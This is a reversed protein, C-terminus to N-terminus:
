QCIVTDYSAAYACFIGLGGEVGPNIPSISGFPNGNNASQTEADRWFQYSNYDMTCFKVVVTDGIKYFGAELDDPETQTNPLEGRNYAFELTTGNIFKDEFASGFPPIYLSDKHLRKAFWRYCNGLTDPDTLKAWTFGLTDNNPQPKFYLSDLKIPATLTTKGTVVEGNKTIVTLTYTRGTIGTLKTSVYFYGYTPSIELLTDSTFGDNIIVTAGKITYDVVSASDTPAFYDTSYSLYVYPPLGTEVYGEVVVQSKSPPLDVTINKECSSIILMLLVLGAGYNIRHPPKVKKLLVAIVKLM